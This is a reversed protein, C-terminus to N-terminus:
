WLVGGTNQRQLRTLVGLFMGTKIDVVDHRALLDRSLQGTAAEVDDVDVTTCNLHVLPGLDVVERLPQHKSSYHLTCHSCISCSVYFQEATDSVVLELRDRRGKTM